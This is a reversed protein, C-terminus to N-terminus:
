LNVILSVHHLHPRKWGNPDSTVSVDLFWLKIRIPVDVHIYGDGSTNNKNNYQYKDNKINNIKIM